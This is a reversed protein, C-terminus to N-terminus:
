MRCSCCTFSGDSNNSQAMPVFATCRSCTSGDRDQKISDDIYNWRNDTMLTDYPLYGNSRPWGDIDSYCRQNDPDLRYIIHIYKKNEDSTFQWRQGVLIEKPKHIIEM